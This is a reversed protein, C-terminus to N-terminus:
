TVKNNKARSIILTFYFLIFIAVIIVVFITVIFIANRNIEKKLTEKKVIINQDCIMVLIESMLIYFCSPHFDHM